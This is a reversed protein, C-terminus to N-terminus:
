CLNTMEGNLVLLLPFKISTFSVEHSFRESSDNKGMSEQQESGFKM